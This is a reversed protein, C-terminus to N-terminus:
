GVEEIEKMYDEELANAYKEAFKINNFAIAKFDAVVKNHLRDKVLYGGLNDKDSEVYYRPLPNDCLWKKCYNKLDLVDERKLEIKIPRENNVSFIVYPLEIKISYNNSEWETTTTGTRM